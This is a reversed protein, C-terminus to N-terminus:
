RVSAREERPGAGARFEYRVVYPVDLEDHVVAWVGTRDPVMVSINGGVTIGLERDTYLIRAPRGRADLVLWRVTGSRNDPGRLWTSADSGVIVKTVAPHFEPFRVSDAIAKRLVAISPTLRQMDPLSAYEELVANRTTSTIAELEVPLVNHFLTDGGIGVRTVMCRGLRGANRRSERRVFTVSSVDPAIPEFTGYPPPLTYFAVSM